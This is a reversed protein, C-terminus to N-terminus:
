EFINPSTVLLVQRSPASGAGFWCWIQHADVPRRIYKVDAISQPQNAIEPLCDTPRVSSSGPRVHIDALPRVGRRVVGSLIASAGGVKVLGPAVRPSPM